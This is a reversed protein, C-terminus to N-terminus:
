EGGPIKLLIYLGLFSWLLLFLPGLFGKVDELFTCPVEWFNMEFSQGRWSFDGSATPCTGGGSPWADAAAMATSVVSFDNVLTDYLASTANAFCEAVKDGFGEGDDWCGWGEGPEGEADGDGDCGADSDPNCMLGQGSGGSGGGGSGDGDGDGGTAGYPNEGSSPPTRAAGSVTSSSYVNVVTDNNLTIQADPTAPVGPTGNDPVPPIPANEGCVRSGDAMVICSDDEVNGLCIFEENLWGCNTENHHSQCFTYEDSEECAEPDDEPEEEPEVGLTCAEESILYASIYTDFGWSYSYDARCGNICITPSNENRIWASTQTRECELEPCEVTTPSPSTASSNIASNSTNLMRFTLSNGVSAFETGNTTLCEHLQWNAGNKAIFVAAVAACYESARFYPGGPIEAAAVNAHNNKLWYHCTSQASAVVSWCLAIVVLAPICRVRVACRRLFVGVM